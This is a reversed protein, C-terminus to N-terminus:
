KGTSGFGGTGRDTESLIDTQVLSIQPLEIFMIQCCKENLEFDQQVDVEDINDELPDVYDFIHPYKEFLDKYFENMNQVYYKFSYFRAEVEGRFDSDIVGVSNALWLGKKSVSSRPFLLGVYGKPIEFITGTKVSIFSETYNIERAFLDFAAAGASSILPAKSNEDVLKFSINM